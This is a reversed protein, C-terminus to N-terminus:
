HGSIIGSVKGPLGTITRLVNIVNQIISTHSVISTSTNPEYVPQLVPITDRLVTVTNNGRLINNVEDWNFVFMVALYFLLSWFLSRGIFIIQKQMAPKM